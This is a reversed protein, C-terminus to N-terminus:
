GRRAERALIRLEHAIESKEEHFLNPDRPSPALRRLRDALRLLTASANAPPERLERPAMAKGVAGSIGGM